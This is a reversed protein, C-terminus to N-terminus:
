KYTGVWYFTAHIQQLESTYIVTDNGHVLRLMGYSCRTNGHVLLSDMEICKGWLRYDHMEHIIVM